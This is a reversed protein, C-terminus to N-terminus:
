CGASRRKRSAILVCCLWLAACVLSLGRGWVLWPPRYALILHGSTGAPVQIVPFLGRYSKVAIKKGDISGQYGPFFPRSFGLLAPRAGNPVEVDAEVSNRFHHIKSIKAAVFQENPQLHMSEMSRVRAFPPGRRYFIRGERTSVALRWESAPSPNFDVESALALGDVGLRALEGNPGAQDTLLYKGTEWDIEGHTAFGFQRAVGAPRIPSYGNIFRLQAWLSTSGPRVTQGIPWPRTELRYAVEPSPYVSLYLRDRDLPAPQELQQSLNYRPVGCNTPVCLYTALLSVFTVAAPMWANLAIRGRSAPARGEMFLFEWAAWVASLTLLIWTLPFAYQGTAHLISMAIATVGVILLAVLGCRPAPMDMGRLVEAASVALILDFFPLWRFSWRFLGTSPMMAIALVIVLLLLEWGIKRLLARANTVLGALLAVPAVLGCALEIGTHPVYRTAFDAWKVTWCPLILAPLSGAPVVWQWHASAAQIERASGRVYELVALLAPASLGFGLGTGFVVPWISWLSRTQFLSRVSIWIVLLALMVVTYPFGGTAVLYVFPAPWLFEWGTPRTIKIRSM